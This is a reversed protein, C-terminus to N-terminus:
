ATGHTDFAEQDGETKGAINDPGEAKPAASNGGDHGGLGDSPRETIDSGARSYYAFAFAFFFVIIFGLFILSGGALALVVAPVAHDLM